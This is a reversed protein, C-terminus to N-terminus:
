KKLKRRLKRKLSVLAKRKLVAVSLLVLAGLAALLRGGKDGTKPLVSTIVQLPTKPPQPAQPSQPTQPVSSKEVHVTESTANKDRFEAVKIDKKTTADKMFLDEMTVLDHGSLHSADLQVPIKVTMVPTTAVFTVSGTAKVEQNTTKDWIFGPVKVSYTEGVTLPRDKDSTWDDVYTADKVPKLTNKEVKTSGSPTVVQNQRTETAKTVSHGSTDLVTENATNIIKTGQPTSDKVSVPLDIFYREGLPIKTTDVIKVTKGNADKIEKTAKFAITIPTKGKTEKGATVTYLSPSLVQGESNRITIQNLLLNLYQTPLVDTMQIETEQASQNLNRVDLMLPFDYTQGLLVNRNNNNLKRNKESQNVAPNKATTAVEALYTPGTEDTTLDWNQNTLAFNSINQRDDQLEQLDELVSTLSLKGNKDTGAILNDEKHPQFDPLQVMEKKDTHSVNVVVPTTSPKGNVVLYAAETTVITDGMESNDLTFTVPIKGDLKGNEDATLTAEGTASIAKNKTVDWEGAKVVVQTGSVYSGNTSQYNDEITNQGVQVTATSVQTAGDPVKTVTGTENKDTPNDAKAVPKTNVKGNIVLFASELATLHHGTLAADSVMVNVSVEGSINGEADATLISSGTAPLVQKTAQDMMGDVNIQVQQNPEYGSGSIKDQLVNNGFKIVSDSLQTSFTPVKGVTVTETPNNQYNKDEVLVKGTEDLLTEEVTFKANPADEDDFPPLVLTTNLNGQSDPTVAESKQIVNGAGDKVPNGSHDVLVGTLTNASAVNTASVNDVITVQGLGLTTKHTAEDFANTTLTPPVIPNDKIQGLNFKGLLNNDDLLLLGDKTPDYSVPIDQDTLVHHTTEDTVKFEYDDPAGNTTGDPLIDVEMDHAKTEGDPVTTESAIYKGAQVHDYEVMGTELAGQPDTFNHSTQTAGLYLQSVKTVPTALGTDPSIMTDRGILNTVESNNFKGLTNAANAATTTGTVPTLTWGSGKLGTAGNDGAVKDFMFDFDVVRDAITGKLNDSDEYNNTTSDVKSDKSFNWIHAKTNRTYGYPAQLEIGYYTLNQSLDLNQVEGFNGKSDSVLVVKGNADKAYTGGNSLVVPASEGTEPNVGASQAVPELTGAYTVGEIVTSGSTSTEAYLGLTAGQLLAAGQTTSSKTDADIKTLALEGMPKDTTTASAEFNTNDSSYSDPKITENVKANSKAHGDAPNVEVFHLNGSVKTGDINQLDIKGDSTAEVELLQQDNKVLTGTTVEIADAAGTKPDLGEDTTLPTGKEDVAEYTAKGLVTDFAPNTSNKDLHLALMPKDSITGSDAHNDELNNNEADIANSGEFHESLGDPNNAFGKPTKTEFWYLDDSNPLDLNSVKGALGDQNTVLVINGNATPAYHADASLVVAASKGTNPDLGQSQKVPVFTGVKSVGNIVTTGSDSTKVYLSLEAGSLDPKGTTGQFTTDADIKAISTEVMPSDQIHTDATELNHTASDITDDAAFSFTGKEDPASLAEGKPAKVEVYRYTDYNGKDDAIPLNILGYKGDAGVELQLNGDSGTTLMGSSAKIPDDPDIADSAKLREGTAVNEVELVAGAQSLGTPNSNESQTKQGKNEGMALMKISVNIAGSQPTGAKFLGVPALRTQLGAGESNNAKDAIYFPATGLSTGATGKTEIKPFTVTGNTPKLAKVWLNGNDGVYLEANGDSSKLPLKESLSSADPAKIGTDASGMGIITLDNSTASPGAMGQANKQDSTMQATIKSWNDGIWTGAWTSQAMIQGDTMKAFSGYTGHAANLAQEVVAVNATLNQATGADVGQSNGALAVETSAYLLDMLDNLSTPDSPLLNAINGANAGGTLGNSGNNVTNLVYSSSETAGGDAIDICYSPYYRGNPALVWGGGDGSPDNIFYDNAQNSTATFNGDAQIFWGSGSASFNTSDAHAVLGGLFDPLTSANSTSEKPTLAKKLSARMAEDLTKAKLIQTLLDQTSAKGQMSKAKLFITADGSADVFPTQSFKKLGAANFIQAREHPPIFKVMEGSYIQQLNEVASSSSATEGKKTTIHITADLPANGSEFLEQMEPSWNEWNAEQKLKTVYASFAQGKQLTALEQASMAWKTLTDIGLSHAQNNLRKAEAQGAKSSFAQSEANMAQQTNETIGKATTAKPTLTLAGGKIKGGKTLKRTAALAKEDSAAKVYATKQAFTALSKTAQAMSPQASAKPKTQTSAQLSLVGGLTMLALSSAAILWPAHNKRKTHSM